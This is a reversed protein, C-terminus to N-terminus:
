WPACPPHGRLISRTFTTALLMSRCGPLSAVKDAIVIADNEPSELSIVVVDPKHLEAFALAEMDGDVSGVVRIEANRELLATLAVRSLHLDDSILVDIGM